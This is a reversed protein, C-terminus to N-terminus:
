LAAGVHKWAFGRAVKSVHNRHVGFERALTKISEGAARRGRIERVEKEKLKAFPHSEGRTELSPDYRTGHKISDKQNQSRTDWRLNELRNNARDRDPFHCAEMGKPCPGVFAELVLRHLKATVQKGNVCLAVRLYGCGNDRGAIVRGKRRAGSADVRDLSRFRGQDSVEYIGEYGVVPQWQENV